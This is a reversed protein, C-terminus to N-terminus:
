RGTPTMRWVSGERRSPAAGAEMCTHTRHGVEQLAELRGQRVAEQGTRGMPGSRRFATNRQTLAQDEQRRVGEVEVM